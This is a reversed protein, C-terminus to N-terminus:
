TGASAWSHSCTRDLDRSPLSFGYTEAMMSTTEDVQDELVTDWIALQSMRVSSRLCTTLHGRTTDFEAPAERM